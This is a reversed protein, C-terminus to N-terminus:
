QLEMDFLRLMLARKIFLLHMYSKPPPAGQDIGVVDHWILEHLTV